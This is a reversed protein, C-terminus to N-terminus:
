LRSLYYKEESLSKRLFGLPRHNNAYEIKKQKASKKDKPFKSVTKNTTKKSM